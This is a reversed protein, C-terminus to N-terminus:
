GRKQHNVSQCTNGQKFCTSVHYGEAELNQISEIVAKMPLKTANLSIPKKHDKHFKVYITLM